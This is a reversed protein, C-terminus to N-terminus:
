KGVQRKFYFTRSSEFLGSVDVNKDVIDVLEWGREGLMNFLRWDNSQLETAEKLSFKRDFILNYFDILNQSEKGQAFKVVVERNQEYWSQILTTEDKSKGLSLYQM